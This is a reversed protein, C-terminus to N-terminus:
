ELSDLRDLLGDSLGSRVKRVFYQGSETVREFDSEDFWKSLTPDILHLNACRYTGRGEFPIEQAASAFPSNALITHFFQEDSAFSTQYYRVFSENAPDDV